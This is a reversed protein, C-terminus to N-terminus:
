GSEGGQDFGDIGLGVVGDDREAIVDVSPVVGLADEILKEIQSTAAVQDRDKSIVVGRHEFGAVVFSGKAEEQFHAADRGRCSHRSLDAQNRAPRANPIGSFSDCTSRSQSASEEAVRVVIGVHGKRILVIVM